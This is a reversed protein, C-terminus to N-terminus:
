AMAAVMEGQSIQFARYYHRIGDPNSFPPFAALALVAMLARQFLLSRHAGFAASKVRKVRM